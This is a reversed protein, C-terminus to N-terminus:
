LKSNVIEIVERILPKLEALAKDVRQLCDQTFAKDKIASMNIRVNLAAGEACASLCHAGVGADSVSNPNGKEATIKLLTVVELTKELMELPVISAHKNADQMAKSRVTKQEDTSKPLRMSDMVANFAETDRDIAALYWDKFEQGKVGAAEIEDWVEKYENKGHTLNSVMSVLSAALAGCLAATSGGGPAPVDSALTDMFAFVKMDVLRDKRKFKYEVIKDD